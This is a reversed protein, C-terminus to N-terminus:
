HGYLLQISSAKVGVVKLLYVFKKRHLHLPIFIFCPFLKASYQIHQSIVLEGNTSRPYWFIAAGFIGIVELKNELLFKKAASGISIKSIDVFAEQNAKTDTTICASAAAHLAIKYKPIGRKMVYSYWILPM